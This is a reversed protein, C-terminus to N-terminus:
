LGKNQLPKSNDHNYTYIIRGFFTEPTTHLAALWALPVLRGTNSDRDPGYPPFAFRM